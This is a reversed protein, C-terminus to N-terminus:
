PHPIPFTIIIHALIRTELEENPKGTHATHRRSHFLTSSEPRYLLFFSLEQNTSLYCLPPPHDSPKYKSVFPSSLSANHTSPTHHPPRPLEAHPRSTHSKQNPIKIPAKPLKSPTTKVLHTLEM